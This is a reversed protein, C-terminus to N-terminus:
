QCLTGFVAQSWSISAATDADPTTAATPPSRGSSHADCRLSATGPRGRGRGGKWLRSQLRLESVLIITEFQCKSLPLIDIDINELLANVCVRSHIVHWMVRM